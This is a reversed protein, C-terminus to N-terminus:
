IYIYIYIYINIHKFFEYKNLINMNIQSISGLYGYICIKYRLKIAITCDGARYVHMYIHM